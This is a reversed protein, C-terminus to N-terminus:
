IRGVIQTHMGGFGLHRLHHTLHVVVRFTKKGLRTGKTAPVMKKDTMRKASDDDHFCERFEAPSSYLFATRPNVMYDKRHEQRPKAGM